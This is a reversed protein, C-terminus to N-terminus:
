PLSSLVRVGRGAGREEKAVTAASQGSPRHFVEDGLIRPEGAEVLVYRQMDKPVRRCGREDTGSIPDLDHGIHECVRRQIRGPVVNVKDALLHM